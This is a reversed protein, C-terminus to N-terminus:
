VVEVTGTVAQQFFRRRTNESPHVRRVRGYGVRSSRNNVQAAVTDADGCILQGISM